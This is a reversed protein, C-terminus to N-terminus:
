KNKNRDQYNKSYQDLVQPSKKIRGIERETHNKYYTEIRPISDIFKKYEPNNLDRYGDLFDIFGLMKSPHLKPDKSISPDEIRRTVLFSGFGERAGDVPNTNGEISTITKDIPNVKIVIGTHGTGPYEGRENKTLYFFAMGPLILKPNKLADEKSIKKVNTTSKWMNYVGGNRPIRNMIKSDLNANKFFSYVFAACWPDGSSIGVNKQMSEVKKGKNSGPPDELTINNLASGILNSLGESVFESFKKITNM